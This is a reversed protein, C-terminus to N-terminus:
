EVSPVFSVGSPTKFLDKLTADHMCAMEVAGKAYFFAGLDRVHAADNKGKPYNAYEGPKVFMYLAKAKEMGLKPLNEEAYKNLDLLPAKVETANYDSDFGAANVGADTGGIVVVDASTLPAAFLSATVFVSLISILVSVYIKKM